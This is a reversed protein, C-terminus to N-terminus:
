RPDPDAMWEPIDRRDHLIRWVDVHDAREVYFVRYPYRQLAWARLGPLNLEHAWRPSGTAPHRAIHAYAAGLADVFGLAAEESGEEVYRDVADEADRVAAARPIVPRVKM